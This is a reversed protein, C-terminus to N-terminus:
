SWALPLHLMANIRGSIAHVEQGPAIRFDPIRPMWEELMVRLQLRALHLGLCRHIGAGFNIHAKDKRHFDVTLPDPFRREDLNYLTTPLLVLDGQRMRVGACDVDRSVLRGFNAIAHRRMLEDVADPILAPDEVLQRRHEPHRALFNMFFAMTGVVTDLGGFMVNATLSLVEEPRLKRDKLETALMQSIFDDKPRAVREQIRDNLYGMMTAIAQLFAKPDPDRSLLDAAPLLALADEQPLGMMSLFLSIPMRQAFSARFECQGQAIFGAILGSAMQRATHEMDRVQRPGFLPNLITRYSTHEPPDVEGPALLMERPDRSMAVGANSFNETDTFVREIDAARSLVWHGGNLPTYFVDPGEHLKKWGLHLDGAVAQVKFFDFNVIQNAPLDPLPPEASISSKEM